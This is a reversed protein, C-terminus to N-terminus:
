GTAAFVGEKWGPCTLSVALEWLCQIAAAWAWAGPQGRRQVPVQLLPPPGRPRGDQVRGTSPNGDLFSGSRTSSSCAPQASTVAGHARPRCQDPLHAVGIGHEPRDTAVRHEPRGDHCDHEEVLLRVPLHAQSPDLPERRDLWPEPGPGNGLGYPQAVRLPHVVASELQGVMYVLHTGGRGPREPAHEIQGLEHSGVREVRLERQPLRYQDSPQVITTGREDQLNVVGGYVPDGADPEEEMHKVEFAVWGLGFVSRWVSGGFGFQAVGLWRRRRDRALPMSCPQRAAEWRQGPRRDSPGTGHRVEELGGDMGGEVGDGRQASELRISKGEPAEECGSRSGQGRYEPSAPDPAVEVGNVQGDPGDVVHCVGKAAGHVVDEHGTDEAPKTPVMEKVARLDLVKSREYRDTNARSRIGLSAVPEHRDAEDEVGVDAVRLLADVM